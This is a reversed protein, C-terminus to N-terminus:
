SLQAVYNTLGSDYIAKNLTGSAAGSSATGIIANIATYTTDGEAPTVLVIEKPSKQVDEADGAYFFALELVHYGYTAASNVEPTFTFSDPWSIDRYMDGREGMCFWELDAIKKSNKVKGSPHTTGKTVTAWRTEVGASVIPSATVNFRLFEYTGKGLKWDQEAAEIVIGALSGYAAVTSESAGAEVKWANTNLTLSQGASQTTVYVNILPSYAAKAANNALNVALGALINKAADGTKATYEAFIFGKDEEGLSGFSDIIVKLIYSQNAVATGCAVYSSDLYEAMASAKIAKAYILNNLDIIDSRVVGDHGVYNLAIQKDGVASFKVDGVTDLSTDLAKAVYLHKVQNTSFTAM